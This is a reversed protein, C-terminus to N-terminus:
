YMVERASETTPPQSYPVKEREWAYYSRLLAGTLNFSVSTPDVNRATVPIAIPNVSASADRAPQALLWGAELVPVLEVVEVDTEDLVEVGAVPTGAVVVGGSLGLLAGAAEASPQEGVWSDM